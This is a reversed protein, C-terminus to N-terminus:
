TMSFHSLVIQDPQHSTPNKEGCAKSKPLFSLGIDFTKFCNVYSAAKLLMVQPPGRPWDEHPEPNVAVGATMRVAELRSARSSAGGRSHSTVIRAEEM